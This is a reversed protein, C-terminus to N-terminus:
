RAERRLADLLERARRIDPTPPRGESEELGQELLALARAPQRLPSDVALAMGLLLKAGFRDDGAAAAALEQEALHFDERDRTELFRAMRARALHLRVAARLEDSGALEAARECAKIADGLRGRGHYARGQLLHLEANGEDGNLAESALALARAADGQVELAEVIAERVAAREVREEEGALYSRVAFSGGVLIVAGAAIFAWRSGVM